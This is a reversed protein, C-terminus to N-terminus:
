DILNEDLDDSKAEFDGNKATEVKSEVGKVGNEDLKPAIDGFKQCIKAIQPMSIGLQYDDLYNTLQQYTFKSFKRFCFIILDRQEKYKVQGSSMPSKESEELAKCKKKRYKEEEGWEGLAFKGYFRGSFKTRVFKGSYSYTKSGTLYLMKKLKSNYVRFYGRNGRIEYVHFLAKARFLAVYKDLLFFTPLVIIVLLNKQRMQMMLSVLVRNIGSLSSRSSFGTFAEDFVIAQGKKAKYIAERFEDPSFVIRSLNFTPDIYKAVQLAFTSKGSGEKGDIAIVCDKDKKLLSPKIKEDLVKQLRNDIYYEILNGTKNDIIKAHGM